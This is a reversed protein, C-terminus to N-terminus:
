ATGEAAKIQAALEDANADIEKSVYRNVAKINAAIQDAMNTAYVVILGAQGKELTEGLMRLDKDDLGQKMHGSIAGIAAGTGGAAAMGGVLGIAPFVAIAAGVALGWALGHAAGHRTPEEHKKVVESKGEADRSLVAADFTHSTGVEDYLAKIAEYDAEADAVHDYAAALVMLTDPESVDDGKGGGLGGDRIEV